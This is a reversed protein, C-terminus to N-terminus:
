AGLFSGKEALCVRPAKNNELSIAFIRFLYPPKGAIQAACNAAVRWNQDILFATPDLAHAGRM